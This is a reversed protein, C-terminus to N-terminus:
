RIQPVDYLSFAKDTTVLMLGDIICQAILLRDFPDRHHFPLKEVAVAHRTEIPLLEMGLRRARSSVYQGAGTPLHLKGISTKIAIEWASAVSLLVREADDIAARIPCPVREAQASLQLFIVTDVLLM